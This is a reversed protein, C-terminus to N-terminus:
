GTGIALLQRVDAVMGAGRATPFREEVVALDEVISAEIAAIAAEQGHLGRGADALAAVALARDAREFDVTASLAFSSAMLPRDYLEGTLASTKGIVWISYIGTAASIAILL